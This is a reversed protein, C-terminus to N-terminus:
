RVAHKELLVKDSIENVRTHEGRMRHIKQGRQGVLGSIDSADKEVSIRVKSREHLNRMRSAVGWAVGIVIVACITRLTKKRM